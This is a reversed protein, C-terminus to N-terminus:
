IFTWQLKDPDDGLLSFAIFSSMMDDLSGLYWKEDKSVKPLQAAGVLPLIHRIAMAGENIFFDTQELSEALVAFYPTIVHDKAVTAAWKGEALPAKSLAFSDLLEIEEPHEM